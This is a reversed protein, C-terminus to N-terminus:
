KLSPLGYAMLFQPSRSDWETLPPLVDLCRDRFGADITRIWGDWGYPSRVRFTRSASALRHTSGFCCQTRTRREGGCPDTLMTPSQLPSYIRSMHFMTPEVGVQGVM